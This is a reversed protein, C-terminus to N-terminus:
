PRRYIEDIREYLDQLEPSLHENIGDGIEEDPIWNYVVKYAIRHLEPYVLEGFKAVDEYHSENHFFQVMSQILGMLELAEQRPILLKDSM